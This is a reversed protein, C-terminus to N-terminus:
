NRFVYDVAIEPLYRLTKSLALSSFIREDMALVPFDSSGGVKKYSDFRVKEKGYKNLAEKYINNAAEPNINIDEPNREYL